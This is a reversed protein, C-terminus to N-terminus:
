LWLTTTCTFNRCKSRRTPPRAQGPLMVSYLNPGGARRVESLFFHKSLLSVSCFINCVHKSARTPLSANMSLKAVRLYLEEAKLFDKEMKVHHSEM